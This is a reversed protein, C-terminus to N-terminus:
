EGLEGGVGEGWVCECGGRECGVFGWDGAAGGGRWAGLDAPGM